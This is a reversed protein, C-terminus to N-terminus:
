RKGQHTVRGPRRRNMRKPMSSSWISFLRRMFSVSSTMARVICELMSISAGASRNRSVLSYKMGDHEQAIGDCVVPQASIYAVGGVKWVAHALMRALVPDYVAAPHSESNAHIAVQPAGSMLRKDVEHKSYGQTEAVTVALLSRGAALPRHPNWRTLPQDQQTADNKAM